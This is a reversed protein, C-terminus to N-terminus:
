PSCAAVSVRACLCVGASVPAGPLLRVAGLARALLPRLQIPGWRGRGQAFFSRGRGAWAVLRPDRWLAPSSEMVALGDRILSAGQAGEGAFILAQGLAIRTVVAVEADWEVVGHALEWAWRATEIM